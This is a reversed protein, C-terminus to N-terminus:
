WKQKWSTTNRNTRIVDSTNIVVAFPIEKNWKIYDLLGIISADMCDEIGSLAREGEKRSVYEIDDRSNLAKKMTILKSGNTKTEGKDRKLIIRLSKCPSQGLIQRKLSFKAASIPKSFNEWKDKGIKREDRSTQHHGSLINLLVKIKRKELSEM